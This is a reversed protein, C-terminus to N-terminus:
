IKLEGHTKCMWGRPTQNLGGMGAELWLYAYLQEYYFHM